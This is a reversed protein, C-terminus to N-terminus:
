VPKVQRHGAQPRAPPGVLIEGHGALFLRGARYSLGGSKDKSVARQQLLIECPGDSAHNAM